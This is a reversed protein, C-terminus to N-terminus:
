FCHEFMIFVCVSHLCGIPWWWNIEKLFWCSGSIKMRCICTNRISSPSFVWCVSTLKQSTTIFAFSQKKFINNIIALINYENQKFKLRHTKPKIHNMLFSISLNLIKTDPKKWQKVIELFFCFVILHKFFDLKGTCTCTNLHILHDIAHIAWKTWWIHCNITATKKPELHM